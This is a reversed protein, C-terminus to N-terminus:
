KRNRCASRYDSGATKKVTPYPHYKDYRLGENNLSQVHILLNQDNIIIAIGYFKM